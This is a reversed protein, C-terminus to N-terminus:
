MRGGGREIGALMRQVGTSSAGRPAM